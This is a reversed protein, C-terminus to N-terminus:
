THATGRIPHSKRFAVEIGIAGLMATCAPHAVAEESVYHGMGPLVVSTARGGRENIGSVLRGTNPWTDLEGQIALLQVGEQGAIVNDPAQGAIAVHVAALPGIHAVASCVGSAGLSYGILAVEPHRQRVQRVFSAVRHPEWEDEAELQPCFIPCSAIARGESIAAPLGYRTVLTLDGGREGSGHLYVIAAGSQEGNLPRLELFQFGSAPDEGRRSQM